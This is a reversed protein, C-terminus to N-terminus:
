ESVADSDSSECPEQRTTETRPVQQFVNTKWKTAFHPRDVSEPNPLKLRKVLRNAAVKMLEPMQIYQRWLLRTEPYVQGYKMSATNQFVNTTHYACGIITPKSAGTPCALLLIDSREGAGPASSELEEGLLRMKHPAFAISIEIDSRERDLERALISWLHENTSSSTTERLLERAEAVLELALWEMRGFTWMSKSKFGMGYVLASFLQATKNTKPKSMLSLLSGEMGFTRAHWGRVKPMVEADFWDQYAPKMQFGIISIKDSVRCRLERMWDDINGEHKHQRLLLSM